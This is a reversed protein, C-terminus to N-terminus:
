ITIDITNKDPNSKILKKEPLKLEEKQIINKEVIKGPLLNHSASKKEELERLRYKVERYEDVTLPGWLIRKIFDPNKSTLAYRIDPGIGVDTTQEIGKKDEFEGMIGVDILVAETREKM